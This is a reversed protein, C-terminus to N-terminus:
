GVCQFDHSADVGMLCIWDETHAMSSFFSERGEQAPAFKERLRQRLRHGQTREDTRRQTPDEKKLGDSFVYLKDAFFDGLANEIEENKPPQALITDEKGEKSTVNCFEAKFFGITLSSVNSHSHSQQYVLYQLPLPKEVYFSSFVWNLMFVFFS